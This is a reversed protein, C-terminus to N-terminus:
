GVTITITKVASKATYSSSKGSTVKVKVTYKNKPTGKKVTVLGTKSVTIYKKAKEGTSADRAFAAKTGFKVAAKLQITQAKKKLASYKLTKSAPTVKSVTNAAKKIKFDATNSGSYNGKLTVKVTYTGAAKRGAPWTVTYDTTETLQKKGATVTVQPKKATGTYTYATKSLTVTPTVARAKITFKKSISGTYKGIGRVTVTATGKNINNTYVATYDTGNELLVGNLKVALGSQKLKSGTYTRNKIGSLVAKSVDNPLKAIGAGTLVAGCRSCKRDAQKGDAEVTPAIASGPVEQYDHGLAPLIWSDKETEKTGEEDLFFKGCGECTWYATNGAATCTAKGADTKKMQHTHGPAPTDQSGPDYAGPDGPIVPNEYTKAAPSFEVFSDKCEFRGYEDTGFANKDIQKAEKGPKATYIYKSQIDNEWFYLAYIEGKEVAEPNTDLLKIMVDSRDDITLRGGYYNMDYLDDLLGSGIGWTRGGTMTMRVDSNEIILDTDQSDIGINIFRVIKGGEGVFTNSATNSIQLNTNKIRIHFIGRGTTNKYACCNDWTNEISIGYFGSSAPEQHGNIILTTGDIDLAGSAAIGMTHDKVGSLDMTLSGSGSIRLKGSASIGKIYYVNAASGSLGTFVNDGNLVLNLNGRASLYGPAEPQDSLDLRCNTLTLTQSDIDYSMGAPLGSLLSFGGEQEDYAVYEKEGVSLGPGEEFDEFRELSVTFKGANEPDALQIQFYCPKGAEAYFCSSTSGMASRGNRADILKEASFVCFESYAYDKEDYVMVQCIGDADPLFKLTAVEGEVSLTVTKSDGILIREPDDPVEAYGYPIKQGKVPIVETETHSPDNQCTRVRLGPETETAEKTTVWAGWSHGTAAIVKGKIEAECRSCRQDAEKGATECSAAAGTGEVVRYDHGLADLPVYVRSLEEGCDECYTVEDFGGATECAAATENERVPTGPRHEHVDPEKTKWHAYITTTEYLKQNEDFPEGGEAETFWGAFELTPDNHKPKASPFTYTGGVSTHDGVQTSIHDAVMDFYGGNADLTVPVWEMTALLIVSFPEKNEKELNLYYTRNAEMACYRYYRGPEGYVSTKKGIVTGDEERVEVFVKDESGTYSFRYMLARAPSFKLIVM